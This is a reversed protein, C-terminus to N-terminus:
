IYKFELAILVLQCKASIKIKMRPYTCHREPHQPREAMIHSDQFVTRHLTPCALPQCSLFINTGSILSESQSSPPSPDESFPGSPNDNTILLKKKSKKNGVLQNSRLYSVCHMQQVVGIEVMNVKRISFINVMPQGNGNNVLTKVGYKMDRLCSFGMKEFGNPFFHEM